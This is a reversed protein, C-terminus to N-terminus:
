RRRKLLGLLAVGGLLAVSPEPVVTGNVLRPATAPSTADPDYTFSNFTVATATPSSITVSLWGYKDDSTKFPIYNTGAQTGAWYQNQFTFRTINALPVTPFAVTGDGAQFFTEVGTPTAVNPTYVTAGGGFRILLSPSNQFELAQGSAGSINFAVSFANVGNTELTQNINATVLAAAQASGLGVLCAATTAAFASRLASRGSPIRNSKM